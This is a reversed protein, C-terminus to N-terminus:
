RFVGTDGTDGGTWNPRAIRAAMHSVSVGKAAPCMDTSVISGGTAAPEGAWTVCCFVGEKLVVNECFVQTVRTAARGIRDRAIRTAMHGVPVGKAASVGALRCM